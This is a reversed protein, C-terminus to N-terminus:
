PNVEAEDNSKTIKIKIEFLYRNGPQKSVSEFTEFSSGSTDSSTSTTSAVRRREWGMKLEEGVDSGLASSSNSAQYLFIILNQPFYVNYSYEM